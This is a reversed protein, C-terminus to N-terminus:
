IRIEDILSFVTIFRIECYVRLRADVRFRKRTLAPSPIIIVTYHIRALNLFPQWSLLARWPLALAAAVSNALSEDQWWKQHCQWWIRHCLWWFHHCPIHKDSIAERWISRPYPGMNNVLSFWPYIIWRSHKQPSLIVCFYM